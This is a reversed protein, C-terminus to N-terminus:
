GLRERSTKWEMVWFLSRHAQLVVGILRESDRQELDRGARVFPSPEGSTALRPDPRGEIPARDRLLSVCSM